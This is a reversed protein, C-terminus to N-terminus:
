GEYWETLKAHAETIGQKKLASFLQISVKRDLSVMQQQVAFYTQNANNRTLKDAKTLLIHIPLDRYCALELMQWDFDTLPHRIDMIVVIAKLQQRTTIYDTLLEGWEKKLKKEVKAFGYGPLDVLYKDPKLEFLNILQTRGPTKSTRALNKINTITNIASSKGSNSRGVFAVEIGNNTPLQSIQAASQLFVASNFNM